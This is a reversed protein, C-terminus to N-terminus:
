TGDAAGGPRGGIGTLCFRWLREAIAEVPEEGPAFAHHHFVSMVLMSLFEADHEVDRPALLGARRAAELERAVMGVFPRSARSVEEPFLQLLRWHETTIFRAAANGSGNGLSELASVIYRRLREVPDDIDRTSAEYVETQRDILDELVALLLQDKGGFHRYFTQVAVGAEKALEQTTWQGGKETILRQAADVMTRTQQMNRTRWRQVLPSRDAANEAWPM